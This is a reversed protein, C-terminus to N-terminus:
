QFFAVPCIQLRLDKWRDEQMECVITSSRRVALGTDDAYLASVSGSAYFGSDGSTGSTALSDAQTDGGNDDDSDDGRYMMGSGTFDAEHGGVGEGRREGGSSIETDGTESNQNRDRDEAGDGGTVDDTTDERAMTDATFLDVYSGNHSMSRVAHHNMGGIVHNVSNQDGMAAWMKLDTESYERLIQASCAGASTPEDTPSILISPTALAYPVGKTPIVKTQQARQRKKCRM